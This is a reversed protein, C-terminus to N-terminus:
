TAETLSYLAAAVWRQAGDRADGGKAAFEAGHADVAVCGPQWHEPNRLENVWGQVIGDFVVVVGGKDAYGNKRRWSDALETVNM